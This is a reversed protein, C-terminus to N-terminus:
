KVKVFTGPHGLGPSAPLEAVGDLMMALLVGGTLVEGPRM